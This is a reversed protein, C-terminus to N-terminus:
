RRKRPFVRTRTDLPTEGELPKYVDVDFINIEPIVEVKSVTPMTGFWNVVVTQREGSDLSGLTTRNVGVVTSGRTLIIYFTPEYYSYATHNTVDFTIRGLSEGLETTGTSVNEILLNMRDAAWDPYDGTVHHDVRHWAVSTIAIDAGRPAADAELGFSVVPKVESPLIFGIEEKTAGGSWRFVYTYDAWWDDNPNTVTTHFDFKGEGGSLTTVADTELDKAATAQTYAHLDDQGYVAMKAVELTESPYSFLFGDALSWAAFLLVVTDVGIFMGIGIKKLLDKHDIWWSVIRYQRKYDKEEQLLAGNDM